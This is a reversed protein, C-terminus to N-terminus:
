AMSQWADHSRNAIHKKHWLYSAVHKSACVSVSVTCCLVACCLVDCCLVDCCLATCHVVLVARCLMHCSIKHGAARHLQQTEVCCACDFFCLYVRFGATFYHDAPMCDTSLARCPLTLLNVLLLMCHLNLAAIIVMVITGQVLGSRRFAYPLGLVGAGVVSIFLNSAARVSLAPLIQLAHAFCWDFYSSQQRWCWRTCRCIHLMHHVKSLLAVKHQPRLGEEVDREQLLSEEPGALRQRSAEMESIGDHNSSTSSSPVRSIQPRQTRELSLMSANCPSKLNLTEGAGGRGNASFASATLSNSLEIGVWATCLLCDRGNTFCGNVSIRENRCYCRRGIWHHLSM